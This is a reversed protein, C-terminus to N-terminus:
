FDSSTIFAEMASGDADVGSEHDYIKENEISQPFQRLNSDLWASRNLSGYAYNNKTTTLSTLITSQAVRQHIFGGFRM